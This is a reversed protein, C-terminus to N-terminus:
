AHASDALLTRARERDLPHINFGQQQARRERLSKLSLYRPEQWPKLDKGDAMIGDAPDLPTHLVACVTWFRQSNGNTTPRGATLRKLNTRSKLIAIRDEAALGRMPQSGKTLKSWWGELRASWWRPWADSFAGTFRTNTLMEELRPWDRSEEPDVGLRAALVSEDILPGSVRILDELIFRAYEHIPFHARALFRDGIRPDLFAASRETLGLMRYFGFHDAKRLSRHITRYGTVLGILAQQIEKVKTNVDHKDFVYDFLDKGTGDPKYAKAFKNTVSWLTLPFARLRKETMRTRLEQAFSLAQYSVRHGGPGPVDDLRLDVILGDYSSTGISSVQKEFDEPATQVIEVGDCRLRELLPEIVRPAEDDICLYKIPM